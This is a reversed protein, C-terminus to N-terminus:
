QKIFTGMPPFQQKSMLTGNYFKFIWGKGYYTWIEELGGQNDTHKQIQDPDGFECVIKEKESLPAVTYEDDNIFTIEQNSDVYIWTQKVDRQKGKRLSEDVALLTVIDGKKDWYLRVFDPMGFKEQVEKQAPTADKSLFHKGPRALNISFRTDFMLDKTACDLSIIGLFGIIVALATRSLNM